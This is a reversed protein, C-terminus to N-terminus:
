NITARANYLVEMAYSHFDLPYTGRSKVKLNVQDVRGRVLMKSDKVAFGTVTRTRIKNQIEVDYESIGEATLQFTKYMVPSGASKLSKGNADQLLVNALEVSSEYEYLGADLYDATKISSSYDIREIQISESPREIFIYLYKGLMQMNTIIGNFTWKSWATQIRKTGDSYYKYIYITDSQNPLLALIDKNSNGAMALIDTPLYGNAHGSVDVATNSSGSADVFYERLAVGDVSENLFFLSNGQAIPRVNKLTSYSTTSTISSDNPSLVKNSALSYQGNTSMLMVANNFAIAHNLLSVENSDVAVDIPDSALVDTVTTPFFNFFESTESMIVNEGAVFCFRNKFFFMDSISRGIFSPTSASLEDGVKRPLYDVLEQTFTGNAQSILKIPMTKADITNALGRKYTEKWHDNEFRVWYNTFANSPDGTVEVVIEYTDEAGSMTRPLDGVAIAQGNFGESAQSGYSDSFTFTAPKTTCFVVSGYSAYGAGLAIAMDTALLETDTRNLTTGQFTYSFGTGAGNDFSRKAWYFPHDFHSDLVGDITASMSCVREKNVIFTTDGVTLAKYLRNAKTSTTITLYDTVDQNAVVTREVGLSDYVQIAGGSIIVFYEELGDGREYGHVFSDDGIGTIGTTVVETPNRRSVGREVSHLMNISERVQGELQNDESQTSVGRYLGEVTKQVLSM